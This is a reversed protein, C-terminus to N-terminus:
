AAEEGAARERKAPKALVGPLAVALAEDVTDVLVVNLERRLEEPVDALDRENRKPLIVTQIGARHAALVKEKIGGVPLIKGRLTIEGTMGVDHRVIRGTLASALAVLMTIGASPGDKPIAGAPVHVHFDKNEFHAENLGLRGPASRLYSLAAQASERMVDGLQGTLILRNQRSPMATAEVFIVDGGFPTWALGVAIGPRDTREIVEGFFRPPGLYDPVGDATIVFPGQKGEALQRAVKRTVSGIERELSRVGAERTYERAIRRIAGDQFALEDPRVGNARLQKPILYREAIKVKEEETYGALSIIEMRDRLAPPITELTNGTTIFMVRSLDFPVGLYLDVFGHNQAPDLVELLAAAPDGQFGVALKDIEDLMFVPDNTGARRINQIIRGPL